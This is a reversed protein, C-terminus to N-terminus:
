EVGGLLVLGDTDQAPAQEGVDVVGTGGLDDVGVALEPVGMAVVQVVQVGAELRDALLDHGAEALPLQDRGDLGIDGGDFAVLVRQCLAHVGLV